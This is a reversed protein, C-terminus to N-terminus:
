KFVAGLAGTEHDRMAKVAPRRASAVGRAWPKRGKSYAVTWRKYVGNGFNLVARRDGGTLKQGFAVTAIRSRRTARIKRGTKASINQAGTAWRSTVYHKPVDNEILQAPGKMGVFSGDKVTRAKATFVDIRAAQRPRGKRTLGTTRTSGSLIFDGGTAGRVNTRVRKAIVQAGERSATAQRKEIEDALKAFKRSLELASTSTGM